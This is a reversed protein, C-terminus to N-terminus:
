QSYSHKNDYNVPDLYDEDDTAGPNRSCRDGIITLYEEDGATEPATPTIYQDDTVPVLYDNKDDEETLYAGGTEPRSPLPPPSSAM